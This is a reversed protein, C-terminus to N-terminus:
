ARAGKWAPSEASDDRKTSRAVTPDGAAARTLRALQTANNITAGERIRGERVLVVTPRATVGFSRALSGDDPLVDEAALRTAALFASAGVEDRADLIPVLRLAGQHRLRVDTLAEAVIRCTKCDSSLFVIAATGYFVDDGFQRMRNEEDPSLRSSVLQGVAEGLSIPVPEDDIELRHRIQGIQRVVEILVLSHVILLGLVVVAVAGLLLALNLSISALM